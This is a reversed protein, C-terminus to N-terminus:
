CPWRSPSSYCHWSDCHWRVQESESLDRFRLLQERSPPTLGAECYHGDPKGEARAKKVM